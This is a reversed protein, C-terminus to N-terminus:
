ESPKDLMEELKSREAKLKSALEYEEMEVAEDQESKLQSIRAELESVRLLQGKHNRIWRSILTPKSKPDYWDRESSVEIELISQLNAEFTIEDSEWPDTRYVITPVLVVRIGSSNLEISRIEGAETYLIRVERYRRYRAQIEEVLQDPIPYHFLKDCKPM